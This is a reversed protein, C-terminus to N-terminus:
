PNSDAFQLGYGEPTKRRVVMRLVPAEMPLGQVQVTVKDGMQPAFQQEEVAIFVGGDSIDRTGFVFTGLTEHEVKVTASMATRLHIRRDDPTMFQVGLSFTITEM